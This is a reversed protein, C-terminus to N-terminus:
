LSEVQPVHKTTLFLKRFLNIYILIILLFRHKYQYIYIKM